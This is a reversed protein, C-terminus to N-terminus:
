RSSPRRTAPSRRSRACSTPSTPSGARRAGPARRAVRRRERRRQPDRVPRVPHRHRAPHLRRRVRQRGAAAGQHGDAPVRRPLARLKDKDDRSPPSCRPWTSPRTTPRSSRRGTPCWRRLRRHAGQQVRLRLVPGPHGVADQDGRATATPRAHRGRSRRRVGQRPDGEEEQGDGPAAPRGPRAHLRGAEARDGHGAGPLRDARLHRGPDRGAARRARPPDARGAQPREQPRRLRQARQRGDPGAPLARPRRLHGRLHRAADLAAARADRRRRAPLRGLTDGRRWCSTADADADLDLDELVVRRAATPRSTTWATTSSPSTACASSTWRSCASRRARAWTSSPSSRATRSAACSRSSTSCRSASLIVGAAHVGWQRKLGELGRATDVVSRARRPRVRLARPVRRGRRLAPTAPDFIGALPVDKGMVPPPMAKTIGTASRTRTAAAGPRLGQGGAKAKITGYTIIQAVREEGYKETAYRIMDGRRREDFDMDIDPMSIREPNLFREFLLGHQIPDLETIGLAYAILCGAASGRGPGVRIGKDKAHQVLDATVLFYGPFGMQCIVGIEYEAQKRHTDPVGGPLAHQLGREVEKVLWSEETEGAPVPFRPMLNAARPSRRRRVARRDAAHQRLGRAARGVADRMEDASKLYFDRADFKFRNPDAMTKGSQVCLLVEHADADTPTAHLAPRQHRAAAPRARTALRLLDDRARREIGLGHDM